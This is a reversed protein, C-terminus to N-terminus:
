TELLLGQAVQSVISWLHDVHRMQTRHNIICVRLATKGHVLTGTVFVGGHAELGHILRTNLDELEAPNLNAERPNLRFCVISLVAPTLVEFDPNDRVLSELYQTKHIDHRINERLRQAGYAKFTMWVKLSRSSRTLQAGYEMFDTRSTDVSRDVKLYEPVMSFTNRQAQPHKFLSCGAEIPVYLWKHPDLALSDAQEMGEFQHQLEELGAAPGGYAADVHFWLDYKQCILAIEKLPDIAGSNVTGASGVVCFPRLGQKLDGKITEELVDMRMRYDGDTVIRRIQNRGLGLIGVAKDVCYHAQDTLYIMMPDQGYLGQHNLSVSAKQNRAVTLCTLNAMSGGSVLLGTQYHEYGIFQAIWRLVVKEIESAAPGLHWKSANQNLFSSIMEGALGAQNGPSLVYSYFHPGASFTANGVIDREVQEWLANTNEPLEPLTQDFCAAIEQPSKKQFVKNDELNSYTNIILKVARNLLQEFEQASQDLTIDNM